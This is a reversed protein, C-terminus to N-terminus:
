VAKGGVYWVPGQTGVPRTDSLSRLIRVEGRIGKEDLREFCRRVVEPAAGYGFKRACRFRFGPRGGYRSPNVPSLVLAAPELHDSSRLEVEAYVDSWDPPLAALQAQWEAALTTRQQARPVQEDVDDSSVLELDGHIREADLRRLAGV